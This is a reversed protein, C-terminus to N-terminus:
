CTTKDTPPFFLPSARLAAGGGAAGGEGRVVPSKILAGETCVRACADLCVCRCVCVYIYFHVCM